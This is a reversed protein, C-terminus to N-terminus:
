TLEDETPYPVTSPDVRVYLGIITLQGCWACQEAHDGVMLVPRRIEIEKTEPNLHTNNDLWCRECQPQTWNSM